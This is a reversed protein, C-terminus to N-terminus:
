GGIDNHAECTIEYPNPVDNPSTQMWQPTTTYVYPSIINNSQKGAAYGDSYGAHYAENIYKELEEKSVTVTDFDKMPYIIIPKM